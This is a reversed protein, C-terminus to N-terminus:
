PSRLCQSISLGRLLIFSDVTSSNDRNLQGKCYNNVLQVGKGPLAFFTIYIGYIIFKYHFSMM